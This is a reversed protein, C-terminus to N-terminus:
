AKRCKKLTDVFAETESVSLHQQRMCYDYLMKLEEYQNLDYDEPNLLGENVMKVNKALGTLVYELNEQTPQSLNM